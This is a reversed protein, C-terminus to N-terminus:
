FSGVNTKLLFCELSNKSIDPHFIINELLFFIYIIIVISMNQFSCVVNLSDVLCVIAYMVFVTLCVPLCVPLCISPYFRSFQLILHKATLM